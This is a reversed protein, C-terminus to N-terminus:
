VTLWKSVAADWALGLFGGAEINGDKRIIYFSPTGPIKYKEHLSNNGHEAVYMPLNLNREQVYQRTAEEDGLSIVIMTVNDLSRVNSYFQELTPMQEDCPKCDPSVFVMIREKNQFSETNFVTGDLAKVAFDPSKSGVPLMNVAHSYHTEMPAQNFRRILALTLVLNILVIVWLFPISIELM